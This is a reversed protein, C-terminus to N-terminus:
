LRAFEDPHNSYYESCATAMHQGWPIALREQEEAPLEKLNGLRGDPYEVM